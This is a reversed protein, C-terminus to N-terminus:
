RIAGSYAIARTIDWDVASVPNRGYIAKFISIAAKESDLNRNDPRLGYAIITVAANDNPNDMDADRLYVKKFELKAREEATQSRENPWRGNAIKIVDEWESQTTPLKNFASKYSNLVGAREGAGLILTTRTGCFVFNTLAYINNDSLGQIGSILPVTYKDYVRKEGDASRETGARGCTLDANGEYVAGADEAIKKLQDSRYDFEVGKVSVKELLISDQVSDSVNGANDKFKVYVTKEGNGATLTWDKQTAYDEWVAGAFDASNAIMMKSAGNASLKLTVTAFATSTAGNNILVSTDTPATNDASAGGGGGGGGGGGSNDSGSTENGKDDPPTIKYTFVAMPSQEGNAYCSVANISLTSDVRVPKVYVSGTACTADSGDVTYHISTTGASGSLTVDQASAYAGAPPNATPAAMVVGEIGASINGANSGEGTTLDQWDTVSASAPFVLVLSLIITFIYKM